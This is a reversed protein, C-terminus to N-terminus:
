AWATWLAPPRGTMRGGVEGVGSIMASRMVRKSAKMREPPSSGLVSGKPTGECGAIVGTRSARWDKSVWSMLWSWLLGWIGTRPMQRPMCISARAALPERLWCRGSVRLVWASWQFFDCGMMEFFSDMRGLPM